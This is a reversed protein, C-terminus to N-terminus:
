TAPVSSSPMRTARNALINRVPHCRPYSTGLRESGSCGPSALYFLRESIKRHALSSSFILRTSIPLWRRPQRQSAHAFARARLVISSVEYFIDVPLDFVEFLKTIERAKSKKSSIGGGQRQRAGHGAGYHRYPQVARSHSSAVPKEM